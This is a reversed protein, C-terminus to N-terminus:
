FNEWTLRKNISAERNETALKSLIKEGVITDYRIKLQVLYLFFMYNLIYLPIMIIFVSYLEIKYFKLFLYYSAGFLGAMGSGSSLGGWSSPDLGKIFGQNIVEGFSKAMGFIMTGLLALWLIEFKLATVMMLIGIVFFLTTFLFRVKHRIKILYNANILKIGISFMVLFAIFLPMAEKKKFKAAMDSSATSVVVNGTNNITGIM